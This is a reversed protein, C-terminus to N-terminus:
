MEHEAVQKLLILSDCLVTGMPALSNGELKGSWFDSLWNEIDGVYKFMLGKFPEAGEAYALWIEDGIGFDKAASLSTFAFIKGVKPVTKRGPAYTLYVHHERRMTEEGLFASYLTRGGYDRHLCKYVLKGKTM